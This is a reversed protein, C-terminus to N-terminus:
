NPQDAVRAFLATESIQRAVYKRLSKKDEASVKYNLEKMIRLLEVNSPSANSFYDLLQDYNMTMLEDTPKLTPSEMHELLRDVVEPKAAEQSLHLGLKNAIKWLASNSVSSALIGARAGDPGLIKLIRRLDAEMM